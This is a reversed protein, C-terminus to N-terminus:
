DEKSPPIELKFGREIMRYVLWGAGPDASWLSGEGGAQPPPGAGGEDAFADGRAELM